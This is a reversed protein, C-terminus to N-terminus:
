AIATSSARYDKHKVNYYLTCTYEKGAVLSGKATITYKIGKNIINAM